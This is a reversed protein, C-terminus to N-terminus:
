REEIKSPPIRYAHGHFRSDEDDSDVSSGEIKEIRPDGRTAQGVERPKQLVAGASEQLRGDNGVAEGAPRGARGAHVRRLVPDEIRENALVQVLISHRDDVRAVNPILADPLQETALAKPDAHHVHRARKWGNGHVAEQDAAHERRAEVAVERIRGTQDLLDDLVGAIVDDIESGLVDIALLHAVLEKPADVKAAVRHVVQNARAVEVERHHHERLRITSLVVKPRVHVGRVRCVGVLATSAEAVDDLTHVLADVRLDSPEDFRDAGVALDVDDRVM